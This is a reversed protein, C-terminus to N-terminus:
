FNSISDDFEREVKTRSDESYRNICVIPIYIIHHTKFYLISGNDVIDDTGLYIPGVAHIM